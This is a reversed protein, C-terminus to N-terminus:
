RLLLTGFCAGSSAVMTEMIRAGMDRRVVTCRAILTTRIKKAMSALMMAMTGQKTKRSLTPQATPTIALITISSTTVKSWAPTRKLIRSKSM